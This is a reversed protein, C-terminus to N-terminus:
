PTSISFEDILEGVKESSLNKDEHFLGAYIITRLDKISINELDLKSIPRGVMEEIKVLANMGYRLNRLRDLEITVSQKAM